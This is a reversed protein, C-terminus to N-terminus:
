IGEKFAVKTADDLSHFARLVPGYYTIFFDVVEAPPFPYRFPYLYLTIRLDRVGERFRERVKASKVGCYPPPFSRPRRRTNASSRSCRGPKSGPGLGTVKIGRKAAPITLQGAGCGVDLLTIGEELPLRDFFELAGPELYKAFVGYDGSEWTSKSIHRSYKWKLSDRGTNNHESTNM